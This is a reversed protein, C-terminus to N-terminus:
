VFVQVHLTPRFMGMETNHYVEKYKSSDVLVENM